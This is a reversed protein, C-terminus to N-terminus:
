QASENEPPLNGTPEELEPEPDETAYPPSVVYPPGIFGNPPQAEESGTSVVAAPTTSSGTDAIGDPDREHPFVLFFYVTLGALVLVLVAGGLEIPRRWVLTALGGREASRLGSQRFKLAPPNRGAAPGTQRPQKEERVEIERCLANLAGSLRHVLLLTDERSIYGMERAKGLAHDLHEGKGAYGPLSQEASRLGQVMDDLGGVLMTALDSGDGATRRQVRRPTVRQAPGGGAVRRLAAERRAAETREWRQAEAVERRLRADEEQQRRRQEFDSIVAESFLSLSDLTTRFAIVRAPVDAVAVAAMLGQFIRGSNVTADMRYFETAVPQLCSHVHPVRQAEFFGISSHGETRIFRTEHFDYFSKEVRILDNIASVLDCDHDSVSVAAGFVAPRNRHDRTPRVIGLMLQRGRGFDLPQVFLGVAETGGGDLAAFVERGRLEVIESFHRLPALVGTGEALLGDFSSFVAAGTVSAEPTAQVAPETM